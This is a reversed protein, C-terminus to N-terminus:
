PEYVVSSETTGGARALREALEDLKMRAAAEAEDAAILDPWVGLLTRVGFGLLDRVLFLGFDQGKLKKVKEPDTIDPPIPAQFFVYRGLGAQKILYREEESFTITLYVCYAPIRTRAFWGTAITREERVRDIRVRM